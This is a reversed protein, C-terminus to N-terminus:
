VAVRLRTDGNLRNLNHLDNESILLMEALKKGAYDGQLAIQTIALPSHPTKHQTNM